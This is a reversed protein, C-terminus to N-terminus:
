TWDEDWGYQQHCISLEDNNLAAYIAKLENMTLFVKTQRPERDRTNEHVVSIEVGRRVFLGDPLTQYPMVAPRVTIERKTAYWLWPKDLQKLEFKHGCSDCTGDWGANWPLSDQYTYYIPKRKEWSSRVSQHCFPCDPATKIEIPAQTQSDSWRKDDDNWM